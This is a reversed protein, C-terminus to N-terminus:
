EKLYYCHIFVRVKITGLINDLGKCKYLTIESNVEKSHSWENCTRLGNLHYNKHSFGMKWLFIKEDFKKPPLVSATTRRVFSCCHAIATTTRADFLLSCKVFVVFMRRVVIPFPRQQENTRRVFLVFLLSLEVVRFQLVQRRCPCSFCTFHTM